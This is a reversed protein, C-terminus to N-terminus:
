FPMEEYSNIMVREEQETKKPKSVEDSYGTNSYSNRNWNRIAAQWNKMPKNKGVTWGNSEYYDYFREGDVQYNNEQIFKKIEELTPIKFRNTKKTPEVDSNFINHIDRERVRYLNDSHYKSQYKSQYRSETKNSVENSVKNSVNWPTLIRYVPAKKNGEGKKCEILGHDVLKKRSRFVGMKSLGSKLELNVSPVSLVIPRGANNWIRALAFWLAIESAGLRRTSQWKDFEQLLDLYTLM